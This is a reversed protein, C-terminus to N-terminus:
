DPSKDNERVHIISATDRAEGAGKLLRYVKPRRPPQGDNGGARMATAKFVGWFTKRSVFSFYFCYFKFDLDKKKKQEFKLGNDNCALIQRFM